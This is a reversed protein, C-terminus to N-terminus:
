DFNFLNNQLPRFQLQFSTIGAQSLDDFALRRELPLTGHDVEGSAGVDVGRERKM